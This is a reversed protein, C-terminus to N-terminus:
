GCEFVRQFWDVFALALTSDHLFYHKSVALGYPLGPEEQWALWARVIAKESKNDPFLAGAQKASSTSQTAIPLLPDNSAVLDRLFAEVEGSRRNDPMLWVGVRARSASSTDVYGDSPIQNPLSLGLNAIRNSVERWRDSAAEDADLVFGVSRGNSFKLESRRLPPRMRLGSNVPMIEMFRASVDTNVYCISSSM